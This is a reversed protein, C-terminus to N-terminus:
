RSQLSGGIYGRSRTIQYRNMVEERDGSFEQMAIVQVMGARLSQSQRQRDALWTYYPIPLDPRPKTDKPLYKGNADYLHQERKATVYFRWDPYRQDLITFAASTMQKFLRFTHGVKYSAKDPPTVNNSVLYSHIQDASAQPNGRGFAAGLGYTITSAVAAEMNPVSRVTNMRFEDSVHKFVKKFPEQALYFNEGPQLKKASVVVEAPRDESRIQRPSAEHNSM